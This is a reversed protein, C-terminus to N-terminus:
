RLLSICFVRSSRARPLARGEGAWGGGQREANRNQCGSSEQGGHGGEDLMLTRNQVATAKRFQLLIDFSKPAIEDSPV